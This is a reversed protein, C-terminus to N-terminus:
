KRSFQKKKIVCVFYYAKITALNEGNNEKSKVITLM